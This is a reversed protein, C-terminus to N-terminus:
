PVLLPVLRAIDGRARDLAAGVDSGLVDLNEAMVCHANSIGMMAGWARLYDFGLNSGAIPGGGTTIYVLHRARSLGM